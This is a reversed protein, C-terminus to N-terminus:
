SSAGQHNAWSSFPITGWWSSGGSGRQEGRSGMQMLMMMSQPIVSSCWLSNGVEGGCQNHGGQLNIPLLSLSPHPPPLLAHHHPSPLPSLNSHPVEDSVDATTFCTWWFLWFIALVTYVTSLHVACIATSSLALVNPVFPANCECNLSTQRHNTSNYLGLPIVIPPLNCWKIAPPPPPPPPTPAGSLQHPMGGRRGFYGGGKEATCQQTIFLLAISYVICM